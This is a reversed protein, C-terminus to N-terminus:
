PADSKPILLTVDGASQMLGAPKEAEAGFGFFIDGRIVGRIAGGTDQAVLTHAFAAPDGDATAGAPLTTHLFLPLGYPVHKPDVALSRMPTLPVGQAGIVHNTNRDERFFVYSPNEQMLKTAQFPHDYLWQRLVPMSMDEKAIEGRDILIKGISRYPHGNKGAYQLRTMSGDPLEILGSGQIELFFRMINDDVWMIELGRGDLAGNDIEARTLLRAGAGAASVEPPLGYVPYRFVDSKAHSGKLIPAYYGTFLGASKNKSIVKYPTFYREFFDKAEADTGSAQTAQTCLARWETKSPLTPLDSTSEQKWKPAGASCSNLLSRLALRHEDREWGDIDQFSTASLSLTDPGSTTSCASALLLLSCGALRLLSLKSAIM